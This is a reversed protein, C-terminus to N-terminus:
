ARERPLIIHNGASPRDHEREWISSLEEESFGLLLLEAEQSLDGKLWWGLRLLMEDELTM